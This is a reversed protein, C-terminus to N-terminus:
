IKGAIGLFICYDCIRAFTSTYRFFGILNKMSCAAPRGRAINEYFDEPKRADKEVLALSEPLKLFTPKSM